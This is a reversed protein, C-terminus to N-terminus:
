PFVRMPSAMLVCYAGMLGAIAGSAGVGFGADGFRWAISFLGAGMGALVYLLGFLMGGLAGEVLLGLLCLFIMNGFLHGFSGHLFMSGIIRSVDIRDFRLACRWTVSRDLLRQVGARVEAWRGAPDLQQRSGALSGGDALARLFANDLNVVTFMLDRYEPGHLHERMQEFDEDLPAGHGDDIFQLYLPFEVRDLQQDFYHLQAVALQRTDRSQWLGFVAVNLLLILTTVWPWNAATPKRHLPIILM